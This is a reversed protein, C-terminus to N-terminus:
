MCWINAWTGKHGGGRKALDLYETLKGGAATTDDGNNFSGNLDLSLDAIM